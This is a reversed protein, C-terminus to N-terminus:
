ACFRVKAAQSENLVDCIASQARQTVQHALARAEEPRLEGAHLKRAIEALEDHLANWIARIERAQETTLRLDTLWPRPHRRDRLERIQDVTLFAALEEQLRAHVARAEEIADERDLTGAAFRARIDALSAHAREFSARVGAREEETLDGLYGTTAIESASVERFAPGLDAAPGATLGSSEGNCAWATALLAALVVRDTRMRRM